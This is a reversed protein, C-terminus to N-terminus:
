WMISLSHLRHLSAAVTEGGPVIVISCATRATTLVWNVPRAAQWPLLQEAHQPQQKPLSHQM